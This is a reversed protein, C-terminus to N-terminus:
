NSVNNLFCLDFNKSILGKAYPYKKFKERYLPLIQSSIIYVSVQKKFYPYIKKLGTLFEWGDMKPMNVDLFIIDIENETLLSMAKLPNEAQGTLEMFEIDEIFEQIVKRAIPEDDIIVCRYKM